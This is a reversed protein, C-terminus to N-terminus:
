IRSTAGSAHPLIRVAEGRVSPRNSRIDARGDFRAVARVSAYRIQNTQARHLLIVAQGFATWHTATDKVTLGTVCTASVSTFLADSFTTTNGERTAFPLLLLLTGVLIIGLFSSIITQFVSTSRKLSPKKIKMFDSKKKCRQAKRESLEANHFFIQTM